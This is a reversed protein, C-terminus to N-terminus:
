FTGGYISYYHAPNSNAHHLQLVRSPTPPLLPETVDGCILNNCIFKSNRQQRGGSVSTIKSSHIRIQNQHSGSTRSSWKFIDNRFVCIRQIEMTEAHFPIWLHFVIFTRRARRYSGIRDDIRRRQRCHVIAETWHESNLPVMKREDNTRRITPLHMICTYFKLLFFSLSFDFYFLHICLVCARNVLRASHAVITQSTWTHARSSCRRAIRSVDFLLLLNNPIHIFQRTECLQKCQKPDLSHAISRVSPRARERIM